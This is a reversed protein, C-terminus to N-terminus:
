EPFARRDRGELREDNALRDDRGVGVAEQVNQRWIMVGEDDRPAVSVGERRSDDPGDIM